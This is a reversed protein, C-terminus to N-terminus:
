LRVLASAGSIVVENREKISVQLAVKGPEVVWGETVITDGPWVPKRFQAEVAIIRTADGDCASRVVHRVMHGFTCLGHLIPGQPFGVVAAFEPDVHLPNMDGSLRYLLAQEATTAEEVRFDPAREKPIAISKEDKPPPEGGFGGEGRFFIGWATSCILAGTEDRSETDVVALAFRKMDYIARPTAITTLTAASALPKHMTVRQTGHVVTAMNGGCHALAGFIADFAPIVAFSPYVRPGHKEFLYGLENSKAGVGLAYLAVEKPGYTFKIPASPKGVISMDFPM